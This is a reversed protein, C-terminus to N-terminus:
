KLDPSKSHISGICQIYSKIGIDFRASRRGTSRCSMRPHRCIIISYKPLGESFARRSPGYKMVLGELVTRTRLDDLYMDSFWGIPDSGPQSLPLAYQSRSVSRSQPHQAPNYRVNCLITRGSVQHNIIRRPKLGIDHYSILTHMTEVKSM